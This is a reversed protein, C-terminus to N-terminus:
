IENVKSWNISNYAELFCLYTSAVVDNLDMVGISGYDLSRLGTLVKGNPTKTERIKAIYDIHKKWYTVFEESSIIYESDKGDVVKVDTPGYQVGVENGDEDRVVSVLEADLDRIKSIKRSYKKM